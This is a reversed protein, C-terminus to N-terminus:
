FAILPSFCSFIFTISVPKFRMKPYVQETVRPIESLKCPCHRSEHCLLERAFGTVAEMTPFQTQNFELHNAM